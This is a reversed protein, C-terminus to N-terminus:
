GAQGSRVSCQNEAEAFGGTQLNQQDKAGCGSGAIRGPLRVSSSTVIAHIGDSITVVFQAGRTFQGLFNM